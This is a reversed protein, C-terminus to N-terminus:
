QQTVATSAPRNGPSGPGTGKVSVGPSGGEDTGAAGTGIHTLQAPPQSESGDLPQSELHLSRARRVTGLLGGTGCRGARNRRSLKITFNGYNPINQLFM